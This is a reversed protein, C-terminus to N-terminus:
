KLLAADRSVTDFITFLKKEENEWNYASKVKQSNIKWDELLQPQEFIKIICNAIHVPDHHEIFTGVNYKQIIKELEIL